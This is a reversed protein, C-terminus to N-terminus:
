QHAQTENAATFIHHCYTVQKKIVILLSIYDVQNSVHEPMYQPQSLM